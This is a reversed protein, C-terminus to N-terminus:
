SEQVPLAYLLDNWSPSLGRLEAVSRGRADLLQLAYPAEEELPDRAVWASALGELDLSLTFTSDLIQLWTGRRQLSGVPGCRTQLAGGSAVSTHLQLNSGSAELLLSGVSSPEVRWLRQLDHGEGFGGSPPWPKRPSPRSLPSQDEHLHRNTLAEFAGQASSARLFVKHVALGEADFFQLSRRLAAPGRDLVAFGQVWRSPFLTLERGPGSDTVASGRVEFRSSPAVQQLIAHQNRTLLLLSGLTGFQALLPLWEGDLRRVGEGCHAALLEGESIGLEWAAERMPLGPTTQRLEALASKFDMINGTDFTM